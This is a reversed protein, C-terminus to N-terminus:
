IPLADEEIELNILNEVKFCRWGEKDLNWVAITNNVKRNQESRALNDLSGTYEPLYEPKLTCRMTSVGGSVRTFQIKCVNAKLIGELFWRQFDLNTVEM